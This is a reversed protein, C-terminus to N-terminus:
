QNNGTSIFKGYINNIMLGLPHSVTPTTKIIELTYQYVGNKIQQGAQYISHQGEVKVKWNKDKKKIKIKTIAFTSTVDNDTITEKEKLLYGKINAMCAPSVMDSIETYTQSITSPTYNALNLVFSKAFDEVLNNNARVPYALGNSANIYYIPKPKILYFVFSVTEISLLIGLFVSLFQLNKARLESGAWIEWLKRRKEM